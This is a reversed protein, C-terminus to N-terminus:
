VLRNEETSANYLITPQRHNCAEWMKLLSSEIKAPMNTVFVGEEQQPNQCLWYGELGIEILDTDCVSLTVTESAERGILHELDTWGAVNTALGFSASTPEVVIRSGVRLALLVRQSIWEEVSTALKEIHLDTETYILKLMAIFILVKSLFKPQDPCFASFGISPAKKICRGGV